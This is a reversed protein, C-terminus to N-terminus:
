ARKAMRLKSQDKAKRKAYTICDALAGKKFHATRKYYDLADEAALLCVAPDYGMKALEKDISAKIFEHPTM